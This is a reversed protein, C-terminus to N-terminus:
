FGQVVQEVLSPDSAVQEATLLVTRWSKESFRVTQQEFLPSQRDGTQGYTLISWAQVDDGSYDVVFVFSTGFNVPHGEARLEAGPVVPEGRDPQPETSSNADSWTVVNTTGERNTGGHVPIRNGSRETFQAAGLTSDVAFDAATLIQVSRALAVLLASPDASPVSPSMTPNTPDFDDTFLAGAGRFDADSFQSMTERWLLPGARDLDYRGDWEALEACALSLDVTEAPLVVIGEEDLVEDVEVLPFVRCADVLPQRLLVATHATNDFVADRLEVGSFLEDDGALGARNSLVDLNQRTRMSLPTAQEGHLISYDGILRLGDSPVWFSDNANFVVDTRVVQPADRFPVLGPDRADPVVEWDFVSSSGDLVVFGNEYALATLLDTERREIYTAEAEESLNPTASTDAYWVRGDDAAAITNFLPIGQFESQAAILEDLSTALNMAQYQEIFENNDLNADRYTLVSTDTWGVNPFDLIPGYRSRWLTRTESDVTGDARLVDITYETSEMPVSEGDLLYSTPTEPDLTLLYTTMRKGASATHTWAVQENFGIGVGPLGVLQAGYIDLEGPVVLHVEAFRLEGEWPFHPNGVLISGEGTATLDSGVAWANSGLDDAELGVAGFGESTSPTRSPAFGSVADEDMPPQASPIFDAVQASSALLAVSRAYVYVDVPQIPQVWDAGSCWGTFGEAGADFLYQNWGAAFSEFQEVISAPAEDYDKTALGVIGIARWAFDSEVNEGDEGPGLNAARVGRVKLIQDLLTCGHDEASVFGQGFSVSALDEGVIHPIGDTTRQITARYRPPVMTTTTTTTTSTTTTTTSTTTTDPSTPLPISEPGESPTCAAALM